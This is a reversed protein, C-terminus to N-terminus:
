RPSGARRQSARERAFVLPTFGNLQDGSSHGSQSLAPATLWLRLWLRLLQLGLRLKTTPLRLSRAADAEAVLRPAAAEEAATLVPQALFAESPVYVALHCCFLEPYVEAQHAAWYWAAFASRESLVLQPCHSRGPGLRM